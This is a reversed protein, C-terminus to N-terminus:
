RNIYWEGCQNAIENFREWIEVAKDLTKASAYKRKGGIQRRVLYLNDRFTIGPYGTKNDSRLKRNRCNISQTTIRLNERTNNKPNGDIHDIVNGDEFDIGRLITLVWHVAITKRTKPIHIGLYEYGKKSKFLYPEVIDHKKYRGYYGDKRRRITNDDKDLYFWELIREKYKLAYLM